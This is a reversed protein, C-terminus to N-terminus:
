TRHLFHPGTLNTAPHLSVPCANLDGNYAYLAHGQDDYIVVSNQVSTQGMRELAANVGTALAFLCLILLGLALLFRKPFM